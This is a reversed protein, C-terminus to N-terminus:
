RELGLLWDAKVKLVDCLRAIQFATPESYGRRWSYITRRDCKLYKAIQVCTLGSYYIADDLREDFGRLKPKTSNM